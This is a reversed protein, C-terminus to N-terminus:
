LQNKLILLKTRINTLLNQNYAENKISHARAIRKLQRKELSLLTIIREEITRETVQEKM